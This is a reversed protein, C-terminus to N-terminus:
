SAEQQPQDEAAQQTPDDTQSAVQHTALSVLAQALLAIDIDPRREGIVRFKKNPKNM